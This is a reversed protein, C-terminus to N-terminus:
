AKLMMQVTLQETSYTQRVQIDMVQTPRQTIHPGTTRGWVLQGASNFWDAGDGGAYVVDGLPVQGGSSGARKVEESFLGTEESWQSSAAGLGHLQQSGKSIDVAEIVGTDQATFTVRSGDELQFTTYRDSAKLDQFDGNNAGEQDSTDVHPDGWITTSKNSWKDSIKFTIGDQFEFAYRDTEALHANVRVLGEVQPLTRYHVDLVTETTEKQFTFTTMRVAAGDATKQAPTTGQQPNKLRGSVDALSIDINAAAPRAAANEQVGATQGSLLAQDEKMEDLVTKEPVLVGKRRAELRAQHDM